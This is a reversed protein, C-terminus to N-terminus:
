NTITSSVSFNIKKFKITSLKLKIQFLNLVKDFVILGLLGPTISMPIIQRNIDFIVVNIAYKFM